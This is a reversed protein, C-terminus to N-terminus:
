YINVMIKFIYTISTFHTKDKYFKYVVIYSIKLYAVDEYKLIHPTKM